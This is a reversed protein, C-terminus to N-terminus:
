ALPACSFPDSVEGIEYRHKIDWVSAYTGVGLVIVGVAFSIANAASLVLNRGEFWRGEKIFMFWMIAPFYFTFGSVFLSSCIALLDSFFPIASAIVWAVLTLAADLAIWTAWGMPTNVYRIISNKFVRGHIYRAVVTTNISGSIFIVPIAIGFAVKSVVPGASLLAPSAVSPGVFAYILAGTLTYLVIEFVGLAVISKSFDRPTHMEDMFSFQCLAFSYAFVINSIAIVAEALSLDEKPWVSWAVSSLGGVSEGARIGTAVITIFIAAIISAFDIYGLIAMESFSPPIAVLFLLIASVVTFVVTCAGNNSLNGFMIAGTLVHSGTTFVLQLVFMISIFEYGINGFMMRGAEGYHSIHPYKLKMQGVVYSAYMAVLGIGVTLIVGAVMGLTAFAGPLSLAGLAVATVILVVTLRKWGLRHFHAEGEAAKQKEYDVATPRVEGVEDDSSPGLMPPVLAGFASNKKELPSGDMAPSITDM